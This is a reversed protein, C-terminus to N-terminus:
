TNIVFINCSFNWCGDNEKSFVNRIEFFVRLYRAKLTAVTCDYTLTVGITLCQDPITMAYVSQDFAM